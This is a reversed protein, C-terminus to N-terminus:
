LASDWGEPVGKASPLQGLYVGLEPSWNMGHNFCAKITNYAHINAYPVNTKPDRYKAVAGTVPCLTPKNPKVAKQRWSKLEDILGYLELDDTAEESEKEVFTILNRGMTEDLLILNRTQVQEEDIKKESDESPIVVRPNQMYEDMFSHYRIFPGTIGKKDKKRANEKKEAEKQQWELLSSKNKEETLAAEALLEEQTM